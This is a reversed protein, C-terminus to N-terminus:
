LYSGLQRRHLLAAARLFQVALLRHRPRACEILNQSRRYYSDVGPTLNGLLKQEAGVDLYSSREASPAASSSLFKSLSLEAQTSCAPRLSISQGFGAGASHGPAQATIPVPPDTAPAPNPPAEAPASAKPLEPPGAWRDFRLHGGILLGDPGDAPRQACLTNFEHLNRDFGARNYSL